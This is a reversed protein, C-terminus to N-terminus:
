MLLNVISTLLLYIMVGYFTYKNVVIMPVDKGSIELITAILATIIALFAILNLIGLFIVM